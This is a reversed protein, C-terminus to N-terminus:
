DLLSPTFNEPLLQDLQQISTDNINDLAYKLWLEPNVNHKKCDSMFTYMMALRQASEHTAAFLWNKRGIAVPRIANEVQNNDIELIGDYLYNGLQDWREFAYSLAKHITSKPLSQKLNKGIFKGLLNYVPLSEDLRLQKRQETDLQKEKAIREIAYLQQILALATGATSADNKLAEDFNRRVHAWCILSTIQSQKNLANYGKYGDTQLYGSFSELFDTPYNQARGPEYKFLASGAIPDNYVWFYGLHTAGKKESELVRLTTEDVQLYKKHILKQLKYEYLIELRQIGMKVWNYITSTNDVPIKERVMEKLLRDIPLHMVFKAYLLHAVLGTGVLSKEFVTSPVPAVMFSGEKSKPAYVKRIIRRVYYKAPQRELYESTEDKIHTMQSLDGEPEIITEVVPLHTPFQFRKATKPEQQEKVKVAARKAEVIAAIKEIDEPTLEEGFELKLQSVPPAEFRERKQGYVMRRLKDNFAVLQDIKDQARTLAADQKVILSETKSLIREKESVAADKEYITADKESITADKESIAADKESITADKESITADKEALAADREFIANQKEAIIQEQKSLVIQNNQFIRLSYAIAKEVGENKAIEAAKEADFVLDNEWLDVVKKADKM